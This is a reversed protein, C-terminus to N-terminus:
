PQHDALIVCNGVKPRGTVEVLDRMGGEPDVVGIEQTAHLGAAIVVGLAMVAQAM